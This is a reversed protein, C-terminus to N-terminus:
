KWRIDHRVFKHGDIDPTHIETRTKPDIDFPLVDSIQWDEAAVSYQESAVHKAADLSEFTGVTITGGANYVDNVVDRPVWSLTIPSSHIILVGAETTAMLYQSRDM